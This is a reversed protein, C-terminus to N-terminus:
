KYRRSALWRGVGWFVILMPFVWVLSIRPFGANELFGLSFTVIGTLALSFGFAEFHISRIMEDSMRLFNLFARLAFLVPVVPLLAAAFRLPSDTLAGILPISIFLLVAYAVMAATFSRFYRSSAPM